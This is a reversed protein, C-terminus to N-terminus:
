VSGGRSPLAAECQQQSVCCLPSLPESVCAMVEHWSKHSTRRLAETCVIGWLVGVAWTQQVM